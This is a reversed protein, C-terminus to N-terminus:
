NMKKNARFFLLGSNSAVAIAKLIEDVCNRKFAQIIVNTLLPETPFQVM